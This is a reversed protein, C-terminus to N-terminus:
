ILCMIIWTNSHKVRLLRKPHKAKGSWLGLVCLCHAISDWLITLSNHHIVILVECGTDSDLLTFCCIAVKKQSMLKKLYKSFWLELEKGPLVWFLVPHLHCVRLMWGPVCPCVNENAFKWLDELSNRNYTGIECDGECLLARKFYLAKNFGVDTRTYIMVSRYVLFGFMSCILLVILMYSLGMAYRQNTWFGFLLAARSWDTGEVLDKSVKM